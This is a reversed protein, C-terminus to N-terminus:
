FKDMHVLILDPYPCNMILVAQCYKGEFLFTAFEAKAVMNDLVHKPVVYTTTNDTCYTNGMCQMEHLYEEAREKEMQSQQEASISPNIVAELSECKAHFEKCIVGEIKM